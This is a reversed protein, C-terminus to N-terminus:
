VSEDVVPCLCDALQVHCRCVFCCIFLMVSWLASKPLCIRAVFSSSVASYATHKTTEIIGEGLTLMIIFYYYCYTM